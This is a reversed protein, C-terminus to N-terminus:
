PPYSYKKSRLLYNAPPNFSRKITFCLELRFCGKEELRKLLVAIGAERIEPLYSRASNECPRKKRKM